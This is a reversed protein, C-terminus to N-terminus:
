ISSKYYKSACKTKTAMKFQASMKYKIRLLKEIKRTTQEELTYLFHQIHAGDQMKSFFYEILSLYETWFLFNQFFVIQLM